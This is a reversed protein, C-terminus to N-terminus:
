LGMQKYFEKMNEQEEQTYKKEKKQLKISNQWEIFEQRKQPDGIKNPDFRRANRIKNLLCCNGLESDSLGNLLDFFEWWHMKEEDLKIGYDSRFSTKIYFYDKVYDMDPDEDKDNQPEKGCLLYKKAISLLKDYHHTANLGKEGFLVYIIALARECDGISNDEAIKTCEIAFRFDTNIKYRVGEIESYEPYNM